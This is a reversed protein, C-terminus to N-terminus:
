VQANVRDEQISLENVHIARDEADIKNRLIVEEDTAQLFPLTSQRAINLQWDFGQAIKFRVFAMRVKDLEIRFDNLIVKVKAPSYGAGPGELPFIPVGRDVEIDEDQDKDDLVDGTHPLQDEWIDRNVLFTRLDGHLENYTQENVDLVEITDTLIKRALRRAKAKFRKRINNMIGLPSDDYEEAM